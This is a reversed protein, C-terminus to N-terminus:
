KAASIHVRLGVDEVKGLIGPTFERSRTLEHLDFGSVETITYGAAQADPRTSIQDREM